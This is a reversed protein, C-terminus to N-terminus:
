VIVLQDVTRDTAHKVGTPQAILRTDDEIAFTVPLAQGEEVSVPEPFCLMAQMWHSPIGPRTTLASGVGLDMDFWATVGDVVGGQGVRFTRMWPQGTAPEQELDISMISREDSLMTHEWTRLRIPFHGRTQHANLATVDVGCAESVENLRRAVPVSVLAGILHVRRPVARYSPRLLTRRAARLSPIIGEGILGCDFIETVLLDGRRDSPAHM